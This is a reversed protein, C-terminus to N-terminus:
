QGYYRKVNDLHEEYTTAFVHEGGKCGQERCVFFFFNTEAPNLVAEISAIGPNAIPGPPLGPYLYTNYPSDVDQYEALTVPTKWWQDKDAQYGMAYQVTPDAELYNRPSDPGLRNLYVSAIIPREEAVVAEREVIAAIILIEYLTLNQQVAMQQADPPLKSALNDLMRTILETPTVDIPLRYTDPYLYGELTQTAPREALVPHRIVTDPQIATLFAQGDMINNATLLDAIQEARWGEPITVIIEQATAKQLAVGIEKMTMNARLVYHGAEITQDLGNYQLFRRFLRPDNLLGLSNLRSAISIISEGSEISFPITATDDSIPQNIENAQFPLWVGLAINRLSSGSNSRVLGAQSVTIASRNRLGIVCIGSAILLMFLATLVVISKAQNRRRKTM